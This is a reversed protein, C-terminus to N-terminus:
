IRIKSKWHSPTHGPSAITPSSPELSTLYGQNRNSINKHKGGAMQNDRTSGEREIDSQIRDKMDDQNHIFEESDLKRQTGFVM